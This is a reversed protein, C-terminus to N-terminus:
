NPLTNNKKCTYIKTTIIKTEKKIRVCYKVYSISM